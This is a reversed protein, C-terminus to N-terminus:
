SHPQPEHVPAEPVYAIFTFHWTAQNFSNFIEHLIVVKYGNSKCSMIFTLIVIM